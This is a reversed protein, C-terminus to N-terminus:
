PQEQGILHRYKPPIFIPKIGKKELEANWEHILAPASEPDEKLIKMAAIQNQQWEKHAEKLQSHYYSFFEQANGGKDIYEALLKKVEEVTRKADAIKESDGELVPNSTALIERIHAEDRISIRPLPPPTDGIRTTFIWSAVQETGTRFAHNTPTSMNLPVSVMKKLIYEERESKPIDKLTARKPQDAIPVEKSSRPSKQAVKRELPHNKPANKQRPHNSDEDSSRGDGFFNIFYGGILLCGIIAVGLYGLFSKTNHQRPKASLEEISIPHIGKSKLNSVACSRTSADIEGVEVKGSMGRFKYAYKM